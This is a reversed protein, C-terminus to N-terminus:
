QLSQIDLSFPKPTTEVTHKKYGELAERRGEMDCANSDTLNDVTFHFIIHCGLKVYAQSSKGVAVPLCPVMFGKLTSRHQISLKEKKFFPFFALQRPFGQVIWKATKCESITQIQPGVTQTM